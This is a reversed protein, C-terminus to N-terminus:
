TGMEPLLAHLALSGQPAARLGAELDRVVSSALVARALGKISDAHVLVCHPIIQLAYMPRFTSLFNAIKTNSTLIMVVGPHPSSFLVDETRFDLDDGTAAAMQTVVARRLEAELCNEYTHRCTFYTPRSQLPPLPPLPPVWNRDDRQQRPPNKRNRNTTTNRRQPNRDDRGSGRSSTNRSRQTNGDKDENDDWQRRRTTTPQQGRRREEAAASSSSSSYRSRGVNQPQQQQQQQPNNPSRRRRRRQGENDQDTDDDYEARYNQSYLRTATPAFISSPINSFFSNAVVATATTIRHSDAFRSPTLPPTRIRTRTRTRAVISSSSSVLASCLSGAHRSVCSAASVHLVVVTMLRLPRRLLTTCGLHVM